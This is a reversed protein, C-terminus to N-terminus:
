RVHVLFGCALFPGIRLEAESTPLGVIGRLHGRLVKDIEGVVAPDRLGLSEVAPRIESGKVRM